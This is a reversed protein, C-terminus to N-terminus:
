SNGLELMNRIFEAYDRIKEDFDEGDYIIQWEALYSSIPNQWPIIYIKNEAINYTSLITRMEAADAGKLGMLERSMFDRGEESHPLLGFSYSGETMQWVYVDLGCSSDLNFYEPYRDKAISVPDNQPNTLFGVALAICAIVAGIIVWLAPKKYNLAARVRGKIFSEGFALPYAAKAKGRVSCSLLTETYDARAGQDLKEIVKEDCALEIDRCLLIYALWMLPNFWHLALLLFGLPKWLHDGRRLHAAEHATIYAMDRESLSFPLYIKPKIIGLVFATAVNESQYVNGHLLVASRVTRRTRSYGIATYIFLVAVGLIWIATLPPLWLQLISTKPSYIVSHSWTPHTPGGVIEEPLTDVTVVPRVVEASPILSFASEIFFPSILRLAVIGWLAVNTWKPMKKFLLRLLLVALIAYSAAVSTNIISYLVQPM